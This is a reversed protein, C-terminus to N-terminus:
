SASPHGLEARVEKVAAVINTLKAKSEEWTRTKLGCDPDVYMKEPPIFQLGRKIGEKIEEVSEIRHSHIDVVGYGVEKTFPHKEFHDLLRYHSNAFELDIQDLPLNLMTPYIKDFTGYCIHTVIKASIGQTVIGMAEIALEVEDTRASLAPEDVQIITAGARELDKVEEHIARALALCCERRNPYYEVFSWDMMTYPGTLMGKVPKETLTQAYRWWDVTIANPREIADMVIPKHYYRNGYSRVLGSIEFGKMHEAFYEAMDGRYMEGDVIVDIDLDEQLQIVERTAQQELEKMEDPDMQGRRLKTRAKTIYDPKPFSGVTTTQLIQQAM